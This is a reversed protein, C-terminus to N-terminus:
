RKALEENAKELAQKTEALAATVRALEEGKKAAQKLQEQLGAVDVNQAIDNRSMATNLRGTLAAYAPNEIVRDLIETAVESM